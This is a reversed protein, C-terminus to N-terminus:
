HTLVKTSGAMKNFFCVMLNSEVKWLSFTPFLNHYLSTKFFGPARIVTNNTMCTRIREFLQLHTCFTWFVSTQSWPIESDSVLWHLIEDACILHKWCLPVRDCRVTTYCYTTSFKKTYRIVTSIIFLTLIRVLMKFAIHLAFAMFNTLASTNHIISSNHRANNWDRYVTLNCWCSQHLGISSACGKVLWPRSKHLYLDISTIKIVM